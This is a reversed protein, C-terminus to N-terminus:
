FSVDYTYGNDTQIVLEWPWESDRYRSNIVKRHTEAEVAKVAEELTAEKCIGTGIVPSMANEPNTDSEPWSTMVVEYTVM